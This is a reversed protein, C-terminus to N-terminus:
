AYQFGKMQDIVAAGYEANGHTPDRDWFERRLFGQEDLAQAPAPMFGIGAQRCDEQLLDIQASYWKQRIEKPAIGQEVISVFATPWKQTGELDGFPPPPAVWIFPCDFQSRIKETRGKASRMRAILAARILGQPVLKRGPLIWSESGYLFDFPEPSEVLGLLNYEMGGVCCFVADAKYRSALDPLIEKSKVTPDAVLRVDVAVVGSDQRLVRSARIVAHAHSDGLFVLRVCFNGYLVICERLKPCCSEGLKCGQMNVCIFGSAIMNTCIKADM